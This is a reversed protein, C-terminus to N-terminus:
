LLLKEETQKNERKKMETEDNRSPYNTGPRNFENNAYQVKMISTHEYPLNKKEENM